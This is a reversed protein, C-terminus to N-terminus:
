KRWVSGSRDKTSVAPYWCSSLILPCQIMLVFETPQYSVITNMSVCITAINYYFRYATSRIVNCSETLCLRFILPAMFKNLNEHVYWRLWSLRYSHISSSNWILFGHTLNKDILQIYHLMWFLTFTNM